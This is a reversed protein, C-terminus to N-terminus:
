FKVATIIGAFDRGDSGGDKRTGDILRFDDRSYEAKILTRPNPWYGLGFAYRYLAKTDYGFASNGGAFPKGDFAYGEEDHFTGVASLRGVLYWKHDFRPGLNWKPEVQFYYIERDFRENDDDVFAHGFQAKLYRDEGFNYKADVEYSYADVTGSGSSGLASNLSGAGVPRFHSGGFEWASASSEGNYFGSVSLYLKETPQGYLKLSVFKSKNDEFARDDHGDMVALIWNTSYLVLGEDWGYPYAAAFTILPNDIVDQTLYDEGFPIDMRGIKLGVNMGAHGFLTTFVDKLHVYVEATRAFKTNEDGLRVTQIEHFYRVDEWVQADINVTAEYNLFSGRQKVAKGGTTVFGGAGFGDIRINKYWPRALVNEAEEAAPVSSVEEAGLLVRGPPTVAAPPAPAMGMKNELQNIKEMLQRITEQQSQNAEQLQQIVTQQQQNFSEQEKLERKLEELEAATDAPCLSPYSIFSVLILFLLFRMGNKAEGKSM